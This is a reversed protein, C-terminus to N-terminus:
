IIRQCFQVAERCEVYLPENVEYNVRWILRYEQQHSHRILKIFMGKPFVQNGINIILNRDIKEGPKTEAAKMALIGMDQQIARQSLYKCSGFIISKFGLIKSAIAISFEAVDNIKFYSDTHFAQMLETDGRLSTSLIYSNRGAGGRIRIAIKKSPIPMEVILHGEQPDHRQEDVHKAFESFASLRLKGSSFFEDVYEKPLYRYVPPLVVNNKLLVDRFQNSNV